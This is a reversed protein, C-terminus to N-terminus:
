REYKIFEEAKGEIIAFEAKLFPHTEAKQYVRIMNIADEKSSTRAQITGDKIVYYYRMTDGGEM